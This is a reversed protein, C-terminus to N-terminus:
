YPSNRGAPMRDTNAMSAMVETKGTRSKCKVRISKLLTLKIWAINNSLRKKFKDTQVPAYFPLIVQRLRETTVVTTVAEGGAESVTSVTEPPTVYGNFRNSLDTWIAAPVDGGGGGGDALSFLDGLYAVACCRVLLILFFHM